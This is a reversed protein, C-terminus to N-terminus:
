FDDYNKSRRIENQGNNVQNDSNTMQKKNDQSLDKALNNSMSDATKMTKRSTGIKVSVYKEKKNINQELIIVGKLISNASNSIKEVMTEVTKRNANVSQQGDSSMSNNTITKSIEEISETTNLKEKLFKTINAKARLVAKSTAQRVDQRDGFLLDAESYAIIKSWDSGDELFIIEVGTTPEKYQPNASSVITLLLISAVIVHIKNM